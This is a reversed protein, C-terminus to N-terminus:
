NLLILKVRLSLLIKGLKLPKVLRKKLNLLKKKQLCIMTQKLMHIMAAENGDFLKLVAATGATGALTGYIGGKTTKSTDRIKVRDKGVIAGKEPATEGPTVFRPRGTKESVGIITNDLGQMEDLKSEIKEDIKKAGKKTAKVGAKILSGLGKQEREPPMMLSGMAKSDRMSNMKKFAQMIINEDFGEVTQDFRQRILNKDEESQAKELSMQMQEYLQIYNDVENNTNKDKPM